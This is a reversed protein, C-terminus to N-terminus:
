EVILLGAVLAGREPIRNTLIHEHESHAGGGEIGLGDLVSACMAAAFNGDSAGGVSTEGLDVDLLAAISRAKEYLKVVGDTHELPPRNVGGAVVVRVRDDFPTAGRLENDVREAEPTTSFRVDIEARAYAAVVNSATGGEICGVNITTGCSLDQLESLRIMQRALELVASAGREPELGAHAARGYIEMTYLATGKRATKVRGSPASPELVLVSAARTAEKEVLKRGTASGAEEDCTFLLVVPRSPKLSLADLARLSEFALACNAKMDFIGPAYIRGDDERWPREKISGRPHVTDTHGLLLTTRTENGDDFVRVRLHEGYDPIAIREVRTVADIRRAEAELLEVVRRSGEADGSPSECEVLKRTLELVAGQRREFHSRLASLTLRTLDFVM